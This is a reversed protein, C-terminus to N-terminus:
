ESLNWPYKDTTLSDEEEQNILLNKAELHIQLDKGELTKTLSIEEEKGITKTLTIGGENQKKRQSITDDKQTTKM